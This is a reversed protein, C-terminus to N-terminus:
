YKQKERRKERVKKNDLISGHHLKRTYQLEDSLTDSHILIVVSAAILNQYWWRAETWHFKGQQSACASSNWICADRYVTRRSNATMQSAFYACTFTGRRPVATQVHNVVHLCTPLPFVERSSNLSFVQIHLLWGGTLQKPLATVLSAVSM